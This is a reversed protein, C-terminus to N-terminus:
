CNPIEMNDCHRGNLKLEIWSITRSSINFIHFALAPHRVSPRIVSLLGHCLSVQLLAGPSSFIFLVFLILVFNTAGSLSYRCLISWILFVWMIYINKKKNRWLFIHQPCEESAGQMPVELSYVNKHCFLCSAWPWSERM